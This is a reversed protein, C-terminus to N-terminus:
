GLSEVDTKTEAKLGEGRAEMEWFGPYLSFFCLRATIRIM